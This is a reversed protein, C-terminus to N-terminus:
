RRNMDLACLLKSLLPYFLRPFANISALWVANWSSRPPHRFSM